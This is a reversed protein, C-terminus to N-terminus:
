RRPRRRPPPEARRRATAELLAVLEPYDQDPEEDRERALEQLAALREAAPSPRLTATTMTPEKDYRRNQGLLV